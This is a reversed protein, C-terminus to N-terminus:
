PCYNLTLQSLSSVFSSDLLPQKTDAQTEMSGLKGDLGGTFLSIKTFKNEETHMQDVNVKKRHSQNM